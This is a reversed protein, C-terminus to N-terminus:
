NGLGAFFNRRNDTYGQVIESEKTVDEPTRLIEALSVQELPYEAPIGGINKIKPFITRDEM